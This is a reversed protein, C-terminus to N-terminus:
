WTCTRRVILPLDNSQLVVEGPLLLLLCCSVARRAHRLKRPAAGHFGSRFAVNHTVSQEELRQSSLAAPEVLSQLSFAFIRALRRERPLPWAVYAPLLADM